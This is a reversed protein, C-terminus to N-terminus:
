KIEFIFFDYYDNIGKWNVLRITYFHYNQFARHSQKEVQCM